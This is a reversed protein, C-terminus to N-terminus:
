VVRTLIGCAGSVGAIHTLITKTPDVSVHEPILARNSPDAFTLPGGVMAPLLLGGGGGGGGGAGGGGVLAELLDKKLDALGEKLAAQFFDPIGERLQQVELRLTSVEAQLRDMKRMIGDSSAPGADGGAAPQKANQIAQALKRVIVRPDNVYAVFARTGHAAQMDNHIQEAIDPGMIDRLQALLAQIEASNATAM